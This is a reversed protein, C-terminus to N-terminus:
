HNMTVEGKRTPLGTKAMLDWFMDMDDPNFFETKNGMGKLPKPFNPDKKVRKWYAVRGLPCDSINDKNTRFRKNM